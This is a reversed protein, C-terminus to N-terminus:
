LENAPLSAALARPVPEVESVTAFLGPGWSQIEHDLLDFIDTIQGSLLNLSQIIPDGMERLFIINNSINYNFLRGEM